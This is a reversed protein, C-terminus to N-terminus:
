EVELQETLAAVKSQYFEIEAQIEEKIETPSLPKIQSEKCSEVSDSMPDPSVWYHWGEGLEYARLTGPIHYELGVIEGGNVRQGFHYKPKKWHSPFCIKSQEAITQPTEKPMANGRKNNCGNCALRLNKIKNSGGKSLPIYHDITLSEPTLQCGCWYCKMGYKEILHPYKRNKQHHGFRKHLRLHLSNDM